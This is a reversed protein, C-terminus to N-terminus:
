LNFTLNLLFFVKQLLSDDHPSIKTQEHYSNKHHIIPVIPASCKASLASSDNTKNNDFHNVTQVIVILRKITANIILIFHYFIVLYGMISM